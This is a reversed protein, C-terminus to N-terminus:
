VGEARSIFAKLARKNRQRNQSESLFRATEREVGSPLLLRMTWLRRLEELSPCSM